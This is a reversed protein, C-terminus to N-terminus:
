YLINKNMFTICNENDDKKLFFLYSNRVEKDGLCVEKGESICPFDINGCMLIYENSNDFILNNSYIRKHYILDQDEVIIFDENVILENYNPWPFNNFNDIKLDYKIRTINKVELYLLSLFLIFIININKIKKYKIFFINTFLLSFFYIFCFYGGYRLQPSLLFWLLICLFSFSLLIFNKIYFERKNQEKKLNFITLIFILLSILALNLIKKYQPDKIWYKFWFTPSISAYDDYGLFNEGKLNEWVFKKKIDFKEKAYFAWGKSDSQLKNYKSELIRNESSWDLNSFCLQPTPYVLCGSQILNKSIFILLVLSLFFVFTRNKNVYLFLTQINYIFFCIIIPLIIVSNFRLIIAFLCLFLIATITRDDYNNNFIEYILCGIILLLLQPPVSTGLDRLKAFTILSLSLIFVYLINNKQNLQHILYIIFFIYFYLIPVAYSYNEIIPLKLFIIINYLSNTSYALFDNLNTIGFIIKSSELYKIYPFYYLFFDENPDAIISLPLFIILVLVLIILQNRDIKKQIFFIIFSVFGVLIILYTILSNINTFFHFLSSLFYLFLFGFFGILGLDNLKSTKNLLIHQSLLGYGLIVFPLLFYNILFLIM